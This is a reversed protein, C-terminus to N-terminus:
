RGAEYAAFLREAFFHEVAAKNAARLGDRMAAEVNYGDVFRARAYIGLPDRIGRVDYDFQHKSWRYGKRAHEQLDAAIVRVVNAWGSASCGAPVDAIAKAVAADRLAVQAAPSARWTKLGAFFDCLARAIPADTSLSANAKSPIPTISTSQSTLYGPVGLLYAATLETVSGAAYPRAYLPAWQFAVPGSLPRTPAEDWERGLVDRHRGDEHRALACRAIENTGPMHSDCRQPGCFMCGCEACAVGDPDKGREKHWPCRGQCGCASCGKAGVAKRVKEAIDEVTDGQSYPVRIDGAGTRIRFEGGCTPGDHFKVPAGPSAKWKVGTAIDEHEEHAGIALTCRAGFVVADGPHEAGCCLRRVDEPRAYRADLGILRGSAGLTGDAVFTYRPASTVIKSDVVAGRPCRGHAKLDVAGGHRLRAFGHKGADIDPAIGYLACDERTAITPDCGLFRPKWQEAYPAWQVSLGDGTQVRGYQELKAIHYRTGERTEFVMGPHVMEATLEIPGNATQVKM